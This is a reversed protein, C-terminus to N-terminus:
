FPPISSGACFGCIVSSPLLSLGAAPLMSAL